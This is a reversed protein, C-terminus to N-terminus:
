LLLYPLAQYSYPSIATATPLYLSAEVVVVRPTSGLSRRSRGDDDDDDDDDDDITMTMCQGDLSSSGLSKIPLGIGYM